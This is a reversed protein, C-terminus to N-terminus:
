DRAPSTGSSMGGRYIPASEDTTLLVLDCLTLAVPQASAGRQLVLREGADLRAIGDVM